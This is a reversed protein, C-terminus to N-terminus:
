VAVDEVVVEAVHGPKSYENPTARGQGTAFLRNLDPYLKFQADERGALLRKWLNFDTETAQYDRGGQLVLVPRKLM